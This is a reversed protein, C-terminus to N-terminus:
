PESAETMKVKGRGMSGRGMVKPGQPRGDAQTGTKYKRSNAPRGTSIASHRAASPEASYASTLDTGENMTAAGEFIQRTSKWVIKYTLTWILAFAAAHTLAVILKKSKPPLTILIGPTLVFFLVFAYLFMFPNM